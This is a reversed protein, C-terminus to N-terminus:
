SKPRSSSCKKLLAVFDNKIKNRGCKAKVASAIKVARDLMEVVTEFDKEKFNRSTLAPAGSFNTSLKQIDNLYEHFNGL